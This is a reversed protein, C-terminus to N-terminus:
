LLVLLHLQETFVTKQLHETQLGAFPDCVQQSHFIKNLGAKLTEANVDIGVNSLAATLDSEVHQVTSELMMSFDCM